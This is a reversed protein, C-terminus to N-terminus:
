SVFCDEMCFLKLVCMCMCVPAFFMRVKVERSYLSPFVHACVCAASALIIVPDSRSVKLLDHTLRLCCSLEAKVLIGSPEPIKIQSCLVVCLEVYCKLGWLTVLLRRLVVFFSPNLFGWWLKIMYLQPVRYSALLTPQLSLAWWLLSSPLLLM